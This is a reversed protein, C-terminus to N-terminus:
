QNKYLKKNANLTQIQKQNPKVPYRGSNKTAELIKTEERDSLFKVQQAVENIRKQQKSQNRDAIFFTVVVTLLIIMSLYFNYDETNSKEPEENKNPQQLRLNIEQLLRNAERQDTEQRGEIVELQKKLTLLETKTMTTVRGAQITNNLEVFKNTMSNVAQELEKLTEKNTEM